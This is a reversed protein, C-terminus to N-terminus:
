SHKQAKGTTSKGNQKNEQKTEALYNRVGRPWKPLKMNKGGPHPIVFLDKWEPHDGLLRDLIKGWEEAYTEDVGQDHLKGKLIERRRDILNRAKCWPGSIRGRYDAVGMGHYPSRPDNIILIDTKSGQPKHLACKQGHIESLIGNTMKAAGRPGYKLVRSKDVEADKEIFEKIQKSLEEVEEQLIDERAQLRYNEEKMESSMEAETPEAFGQMLRSEQWKKFDNQLAEQQEQIAAQAELTEQLVGKLTERDRFIQYPDSPHQSGLNLVLSQKRYHDFFRDYIPSKGIPHYRRKSGM